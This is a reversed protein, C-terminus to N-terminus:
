MTWLWRFYWFFLDVFDYKGRFFNAIDMKTANWPLGRLRLVCEEDVHQQKSITNQFDEVHANFVLTFLRFRFLQQNVLLSCYRNVKLTVLDWIRGISLIHWSWTERRLWNFTHKAWHDVRYCQYRLWISAMKAVWYTSETSFTSFTKNPRRGRCVESEYWIRGMTIPNTVM